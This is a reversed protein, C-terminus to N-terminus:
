QVSMCFRASHTGDPATPTHHLDETKDRAHKCVTDKETGENTVEVRVCVNLFTNIYQM